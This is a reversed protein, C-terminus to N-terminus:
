SSTAEQADRSQLFLSPAVPNQPEPVIEAYLRDMKCTYTAEANSSLSLVQAVAPSNMSRDMFIQSSGCASLFIGYGVWGLGLFVM